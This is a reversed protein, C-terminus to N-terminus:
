CLQNFNVSRHSSFNLALPLTFLLHGNGSLSNEENMVCVIHISCIDPQEM